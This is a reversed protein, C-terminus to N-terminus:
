ICLWSGCRNWFKKSQKLSYGKYIRRDLGYSFNGQTVGDPKNLIFNYTIGLYFQDELYKLDDVEANEQAWLTITFGLILFPLYRKM